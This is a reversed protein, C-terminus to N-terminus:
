VQVRETSEELCRGGVGPELSDVECESFSPHEHDHCPACARCRGRLQGFQKEPERVSWFGDVPGVRELPCRGATM